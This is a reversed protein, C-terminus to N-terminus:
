MARHACLIILHLQFKIVWPFHFYLSTVPSTHLHLICMCVSGFLVNLLCISSNLLRMQSVSLFLFEFSFFSSWFGRELGNITCCDVNKHVTYVDNMRWSITAIEFCINVKELRWFIVKVFFFRLFCFGFLLYAYNVYQNCMKRWSFHFFIFGVFFTHGITQPICTKRPFFYLTASLWVNISKYKLCFIHNWDTFANSISLLKKESQNENFNASQVLCTVHNYHWNQRKEQSTLDSHTGYSPMACPLVNWIRHSFEWFDLHKLCWLPAHVSQARAIMMMM